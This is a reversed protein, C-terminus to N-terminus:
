GSAADPFIGLSFSNPPWRVGSTTTSGGIQVDLPTRDRWAMTAPDLEWLDRSQGEHYGGFLVLRDRGRDYAMRAQGRGAPWATPRPVPSLDTLTWTAVGLRWLRDDGHRHCGGLMWLADRGAHCSMVPLESYTWPLGD